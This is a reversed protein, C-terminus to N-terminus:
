PRDASRSRPDRGLNLTASVTTALRRSRAQCRAQHALRIPPLVGIETHELLIRGPCQGLTYQTGRDAHFIVQAPLAGRLAVAMSPASEVLDTRMHDEVAWGM